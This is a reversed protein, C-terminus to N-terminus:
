GQDQEASHGVIADIEVKSGLPLKGAQLTTRAPPAERFYEAYVQNFEGFDDLNALYCTVKLVDRLTYGAEEIIARMNNLTARTEEQITGRVVNGTAPDVPIQGSVYLIDNHVVAQSYPGKPQPAKNTYFTRRTTM